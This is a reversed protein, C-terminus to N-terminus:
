GHIKRAGQYIRGEKPHRRAIAMRLADDALGATMRDSMSWGIIMRSWIDMVVALYLWGQHTRVYTIDAFWARNPGDASFELRVLDPASNAQPAAAKAEGKPRKACGRTTGVWGNERMIRAVSKRSTSEGAKKLEALVKPAGYIGRSAAYIESIKGALEADREDHASPRRKRWAYYGQRTVHLARCM